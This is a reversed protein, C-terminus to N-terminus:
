QRAEIYTQRLLNGKEDYLFYTYRGFKTLNYHDEPIYNVIVCDQYSTVLVTKHEESFLNEDGILKGDPDFMICYFTTSTTNQIFFSTGLQGEIVSESPQPNQAEDETPPPAMPAQPRSQPKNVPKLPPKTPQPPTPRLTPSIDGESSDVPETYSETPSLVENETEIIPSETSIISDTPNETEQTNVNQTPSVTNHSNEHPAGGNESETHGDPVNGETEQTNNEKKDTLPKSEETNKIEETQQQISTPEFDPDIVLVKGDDKQLVIILSITCVLVLCAVAMLHRSYKIFFIPKKEQVKPISMANEIWSDPAKLNKLSDFNKDNVCIVEM